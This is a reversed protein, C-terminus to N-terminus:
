SKTETPVTIGQAARLADLAAPALRLVPRQPNRLDVTTLDRALLNEAANLAILAEVAAVPNDAPLLVRQNRDLVLDWRRTSIRVLGRLRNAFPNAAQWLAKAEAIAQNAGEGAILPLDARDARAALGAIRHGTDDLLILGAASRWVWAPQRETITIQLVNGAGFRVVARAVADFNEATIRIADLDLALASQPLRLNLKARVADSLEPSAGDISVLNVMFMPREAVQEKASAVMSWLSERRAPSALFIGVALAMVLMPVGYRMFGRFAPTLWLRQMKYAWRSPAPDRRRPMARSLSQM